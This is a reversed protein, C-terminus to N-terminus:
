YVIGLDLALLKLCRAIDNRLALQSTSLMSGALPILLNLINHNRSKSTSLADSVSLQREIIFGFVDEPQIAVHKIFRM